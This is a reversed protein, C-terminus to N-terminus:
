DKSKVVVIHLLELILLAVHMGVRQGWPADVFLVSPCESVKAECLQLADRFSQVVVGRPVNSYLLYITKRHRPGPTPPIGNEDRTDKRMRVIVAAQQM